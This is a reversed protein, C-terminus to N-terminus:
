NLPIRRERAGCGVGARGPFPPTTHHPAKLKPLGEQTRVLTERRHMSPDLLKFLASDSSCIPEKHAETLVICYRTLVCLRDTQFLVRSTAVERTGLAGTRALDGAHPVVHMEVGRALVKVRASAHSGLSDSM